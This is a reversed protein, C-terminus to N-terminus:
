RKSSRSPPTPRAKQSSCTPRASLPSPWVKPRPSAPKPWEPPSSTSRRPAASGASRGSPRPPWRPTPTTPWSAWPPSRGPTRAPQGALQHHGGVAQGSVQRARRAVRGALRRRSDAGLAARAMEATKADDLMAALVPVQAPTGVVQLKFCIFQKAPLTTNPDTLLAALRAAFAERREPASMAEITERDIALLPKFDQGYEYRAMAQWDADSAASAPSTWALSAALIALLLYRSM